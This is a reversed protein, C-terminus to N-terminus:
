ADFLVDFGNVFALHVLFSIRSWSNICEFYFIVSISVRSFSLREGVTLCGCVSPLTRQRKDLFTM